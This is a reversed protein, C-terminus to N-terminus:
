ISCSISCSKEGTKRLPVPCIVCHAPSKLSWTGSGELRLKIKWATLIFIYSPPYFQEKFSSEPQDLWQFATFCAPPSARMEEHPTHPCDDWVTGLVGPSLRVSTHLLASLSCAYLWPLGEFSLTHTNSFSFHSSAKRRECGTLGSVVELQEFFLKVIVSVSRCSLLLDTLQQFHRLWSLSSRQSVSVPCVCLDVFYFWTLFFFFWLAGIKAHSQLEVCLINLKLWDPASLSRIWIIKASIM